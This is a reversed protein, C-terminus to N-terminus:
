VIHPYSDHAHVSVSKGFYLSRELVIAPSARTLGDFHVLSQNRVDRIAAPSAISTDYILVTYHKPM